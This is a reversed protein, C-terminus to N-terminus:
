APALARSGPHALASSRRARPGPYLLLRAIKRRGRSAPKYLGGGRVSNRTKRSESPAPPSTPPKVTHSYAIYVLVCAVLTSIPFFSPLWRRGRSATGRAGPVIRSRAQGLCLFTDARPRPHDVFKQTPARESLRTDPGGALATTQHPWHQPRPHTRGADAASLHLNTGESFIGVGQARANPDLGFRPLCKTSM